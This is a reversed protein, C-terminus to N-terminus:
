LAAHIRLVEMIEHRPVRGLGCETAIGFELGGASAARMRRRAGSVGDSFHVLGLFLGVEKPLWLERLPLFYREDDRTIPVPMHLWTLPRPAHDLVANAIRVLLGLDDPERWHHGRGDEGPIDGYCLHLGVEVEAPVLDVHTRLEGVIENFDYGAGLEATEELLGIEVAVDWQVSLKAAPIEALAARIEAALAAVYVPRLAAQHESSIFMHTLALETPLSMQFRASQPIAGEDQLRRFIRYSSTAAEAYGLDLRVDAPHVGACLRFTPVLYGPESPTVQALQSVRALREGHWFIWRLREGTEGDPIRAM